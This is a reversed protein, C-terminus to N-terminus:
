YDMHDDEHGGWHERKINNITDVVWDTAQDINEYVKREIDNNHQITTEFMVPNWEIISYVIKGNPVNVCGAKAKNM